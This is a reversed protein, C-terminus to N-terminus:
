DKNIELPKIRFYAGSDSELAHLELGNRNAAEGAITLGLGMGDPKTTFEPEFIVGSKLLYPEIGPGTDSYDICLLRDNDTKIDISIKKTKSLKNVMWYISNDLLNVFIAYLDQEWIPFDFNPKGYINIDIENTKATEEFVSKIRLMFDYLHIYPKKGKKRISLPEIRNFLKVLIDSNILTSDAIKLIKKQLLYDHNSFYTEHMKMFDPIKSKFFLLPGRGEHFVVNIIKGLTAQGQYIAVARRIQESAENKRAEDESILSIIEETTQTDVGGKKLRNRIEKKVEEFSFLKELEREVKLIQRSLGTRQRFEFRRAELISIVIKSINKLSTFSNNDKLGDRASKEILGSRDESQIHVYGIVQDSGIRLSPNQVRSKNLELWDNDPDGMPRIRFGNRYVGIGNYQNLIQRAELNSVYNGDDTKLGREILMNISEPERDYVRIDFKLDGCDTPKGLDLEIIESSVNRAKQVSYIFRGKGTQYLSGYVRYDFLDFIPFPQINDRVTKKKGSIDEETILEINFVDNTNDSIDNELQSIEVIQPPILKKLEYKLKIIKNSSWIFNYDKDSTIMLSTSPSDLTDETDVLIEVDDLYQSTEFSSWEVYVTTKQGEPSVTELLIDKGLISAAYRGIGKRGQMIRGNPSYKRIEKDNTSPVLWKNIVTDRSMGHGHDKITITFGQGTHRGLISIEIDPSDADYANKVLEAIAAFEDKILDRGITLLHRGAPRIRFVESSM